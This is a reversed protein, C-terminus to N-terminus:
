CREHDVGFSFRNDIEAYWEHFCSDCNYNVFTCPNNRRCCKQLWEICRYAIERIVFMNMKEWEIKAVVLLLRQLYYNREGSGKEKASNSTPVCCIFTMRKTHSIEKRIMIETETCRIHKCVVDMMRGIIAYFTILAYRSFFFNILEKVFKENKDNETRIITHKEELTNCRDM